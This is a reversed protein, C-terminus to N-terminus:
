SYRGQELLRIGIGAVERREVGRPLVLRDDEPRIGAVAALVVQDGLDPGAAAGRWANGVCHGRTGPLLVGHARREILEHEAPVGVQEQRYEQESADNAEVSLLVGPPASRTLQQAATLQHPTGIQKVDADEDNKEAMEDAQQRRDLHEVRETDGVG